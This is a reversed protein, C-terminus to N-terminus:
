LSRCVRGGEDAAVTLVPSKKVSELIRSMLVFGACDTVQAYFTHSYYAPPLEAGMAHAAKAVAVYSGASLGERLCTYAM